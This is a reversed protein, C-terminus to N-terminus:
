LGKLLLSVFHHMFAMADLCVLDCLVSAKIKEPLLTNKFGPFLELTFPAEHIILEEDNIEVKAIRKELTLERFKLFVAQVIGAARLLIQHLREDQCTTKHEPWEKSQCEKSCYPKLKCGGCKTTAVEGCSSCNRFSQEAM